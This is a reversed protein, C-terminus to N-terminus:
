YYIYHELKLIEKYLSIDEILYKAPLIGIFNMFTNFIYKSMYVFYILLAFLIVTFIIYALMIGYYINYISQLNDKNLSRFIQVTEM